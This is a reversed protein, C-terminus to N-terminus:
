AAHVSRVAPLAQVELAAALCHVLARKAGAAAPGDADNTAQIILAVLYNRGDAFEELAETRWDRTALNRWPADGARAEAFLVLDGVQEPDLHLEAAADATIRRELDLDRPEGFPTM